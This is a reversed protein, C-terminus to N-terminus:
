GRFDFWRRRGVGQMGVQGDVSLRLIVAVRFHEFQHSPPHLVHVDLEDGAVVVAGSDHKGVGVHVERAVRASPDIAVRGREPERRVEERKVACGRM